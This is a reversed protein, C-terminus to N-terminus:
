PLSLPHHGDVPLLVAQIDAMREEDALSGTAPDTRAGAAQAVEGHVGVRVEAVRAMGSACM